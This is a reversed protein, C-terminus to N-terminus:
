GARRLETLRRKHKARKRDLRANETRLGAVEATLREVERTTAALLEAVADFQEERTAGLPRPVRPAILSGRLDFGREAVLKAWGTTIDLVRGPDLSARLTPAPVVDPVALDGIGAVGLFADWTKEHEAPTAVVHVRDAHIARTWRPLFDLLDRGAWFDEAQWHTRQRELVRAAYTGLSTTSGSQIAAQWGAFVQAPLDRALVVLHVEVDRLGALRLAVKEGDARAADPTSLLSVGKHAWVQDEIEHWAGDPVSVELAALESRQAHLAQALFATGPDTPGIHWFLTRRAM